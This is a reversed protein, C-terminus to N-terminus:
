EFEVLTQGKTVNDSQSVSITKIKGVMPSKIDNEMKMAEMVLLPQGKQVEDGPQCLIQTIMGPMPAFINKSSDADAIGAKKKMRAIEYDEVAFHETQSGTTITYGGNNREVGFETSIGGIILSYRNGELRVLDAPQESGNYSVFYQGGEKRLEFLFERDGSKVQIKKM